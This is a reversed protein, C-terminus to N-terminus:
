PADLAMAYTAAGYRHCEDAVLLVEASASIRRVAAPLVEAAAAPLRFFSMSVTRGIRVDGATLPPLLNLSDDHGDDDGLDYPYHRGDM